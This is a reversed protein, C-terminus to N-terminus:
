APRRHKPPHKIIILGFADAVGADDLIRYHVWGGSKCPYRNKWCEQAASSLKGIKQEASADQDAIQLTVTIAGKEFFVYCLHKTKHAYKYGWGYNSGFPFKLTRTLDYSEGLFTELSDLFAQAGGLTNKIDRESPVDQKCRMREFM